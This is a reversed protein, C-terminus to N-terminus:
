NSMGSHRSKRVAGKRSRLWSRSCSNPTFKLHILRTWPYKDLQELAEELSRVARSTTQFEMGKRDEESLLDDTATEDTEIRFRWGYRPNERLLIISGGEGGVELVIERKALFYEYGLQYFFKDTEKYSLSGLQFRERFAEVVKVLKEYERLSYYDFEYFKYQDRYARLCLDVTTDYLPYRERQHWSCYKTAFSYISISRDGYDVREIAKVAEPSGSELLPDIECRQILQAVQFVGFIHTNYLSNIAAVKVLVQGLDSNKPFAEILQTLGRELNENDRNFERIRGQVFEMTPEPLEPM